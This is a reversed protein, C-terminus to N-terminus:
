TKPTSSRGCRHAAFRSVTRQVERVVHLRVAIHRRWAAHADAARLVCARRRVRPHPLAERRHVPQLRGARRAHRRDADADSVRRRVADTAPPLQLDVDFLVIEKIRVAARSRNVVRSRCLSGTWDRILEIAKPAAGDSASSPARRNRRDAASGAAQALPLAALGLFERRNMSPAGAGARTAYHVEGVAQLRAAAEEPRSTASRRDWCSSASWSSEFRRRACCRRISTLTCTGTTTPPAERMPQQHFGMSYPFPAEFLNDYRTTLRKLIDALAEREADDLADLQTSTGAASSSRRSRGSRGSRCSRSSSRRERLRAARRAAGRAAHLRVAPLRRAAARHREFSARERAPENPVHETAWLQGHPHPNSAGMM